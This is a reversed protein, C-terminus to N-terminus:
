FFSVTWTRAFKEGHALKNIGEKHQLVQDSGSPDAIGCWPEICVFDGGKVAWVGLYPFGPFSFELGHPTKASHLKVTSSRLSKFVLADSSFLDKSLPLEKSDQLLPIPKADILGDPTIPWRPATEATEFELSYDEYVTGTALPL